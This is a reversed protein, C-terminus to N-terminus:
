WGFPTGPLKEPQAQEVVPMTKQDRKQQQNVASVGVTKLIQSNANRSLLTCSSTLANRIMGKAPNDAIV